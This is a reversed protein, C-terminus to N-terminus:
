VSFNFFPIACDLRRLSSLLLPFLCTYLHILVVLSVELAVTTKEGYDVLQPQANCHSLAPTM